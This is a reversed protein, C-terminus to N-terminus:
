RPVIPSVNRAKAPVRPREQGLDMLADRGSDGRKSM